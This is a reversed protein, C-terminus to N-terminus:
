EMKGLAALIFRSDFGALNHIYLHRGAFKRSILTELM